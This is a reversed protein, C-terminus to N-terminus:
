PCIIQGAKQGDNERPLKGTEDLEDLICAGTTFDNRLQLEVVTLGGSM